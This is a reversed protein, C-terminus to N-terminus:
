IDRALAKVTEPDVNWPLLAEVKELTDALPLEKFIHKLYAYTDHGHAKSTGIISYLRANAHAGEPTSAFLWNKKGIAIPRIEREQANNDIQLFGHNCYRILRPWQNLTYRIAKGLPSKPLAVNQHKLLWEEFEKLIPVAQEQRANYRADNDLLKTKSEIKYLKKIYRLAQKATEKQLGGKGVQVKFAEKFKRRAHAWCGLLTIDGGKELCTYASYGDCQIYGAYDQTLGIAVKSSRSPDYRFLIVEKRPPGGKRGWFYSKATPIRGQENLVQVPTEDIQMYPGERIIDEFMNTLVVLKDSLQIIWRSMTNRKLHLGCRAFQTEQRHTPCSDEFKSTVIQALLGPSANTKPLIQDPKPALKVTERCGTKCAYKTQIDEIAVARAPIYEYRTSTVTGIPDLEVGCNCKLDDGCLEHTKTIRELDEDIPKRHGRKKRTYTVKEEEPEETDEDPMEEDDFLSLQNSPIQESKKSYQRLLHLKLQSQLYEVQYNLREIEEAQESVKDQLQNIDTNMHALNMVCM